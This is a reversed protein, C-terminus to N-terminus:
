ITNICLCKYVKYKANNKKKNGNKLLLSYHVLNIWFLFSKKSSFFSLSFFFVNKFYSRYYYYNRYIHFIDSTFFLALIFPLLIRLDQFYSFSSHKMINIIILLPWSICICGFQIMEYANLQLRIHCEFTDYIVIQLHSLLLRVPKRM